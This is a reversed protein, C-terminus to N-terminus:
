CDDTIGYQCGSSSTRRVEWVTILLDDKGTSTNILMSKM